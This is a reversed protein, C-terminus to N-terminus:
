TACSRTAKVAPSTGYEYRNKDGTKIVINTVTCFLVNHKVLYLPLM